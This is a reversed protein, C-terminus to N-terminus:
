VGGGQNGDKMGRLRYRMKSVSYRVEECQRTVPQRGTKVGARHVDHQSLKANRDGISRKGLKRSRGNEIVMKM